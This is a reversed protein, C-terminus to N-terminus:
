EKKGFGIVPPTRSGLDKCLASRLTSCLDRISERTGDDVKLEPAAQNKEHISELAQQLSFYTDRSDPSLVSGGDEFYWKRLDIAFQRLRGLTVVETRAYKPLLGTLAWLKRYAERRETRLAMEFNGRFDSLTKQRTLVYSVVGGTILSVGGTILAALVTSDPSIMIWLENDM